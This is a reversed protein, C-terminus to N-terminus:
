PLDTFPAREFTRGDGTVRPDHTEKLVKMLQESLERKKDSFAPDAALNHTQDPDQRLDYLEEAPRKAFAYNYHWEWQSEGYQRVLWAKSPSADMDAFATYTSKELAEVAPLDSQGDFKPRGMPWRDPAFNRIYLFDPTRLARHPYPLNDERAAAVHRERGTVVWTRSPDVLGSKKARLVNLFSRGTMVEPPQVGGIQLFTPALDMLNVFDDVVRGRAVGPGRAILAVGTGFDYLNCKGGPVGPMGHDGSIVVWTNNLEGIEELKRLLIGVGADWAQIEGMYDAFDARVEAVDPMFKPLKGKLLEPDIGWLAQGSGKEFARHTLTPGFWYCFPQGPKRDALFAEFNGRVQALLKDRAAEFTMGQRVLKTANESFNNFDRGAKEYAYRQGGYPADAPQGPSWVKYSKGIHYGAERLLLPYSPINTDWVAPQLIAGRGTRWFYQGSLLSSRCPTCSPATVFANKFLVGQRAVGDINPTKIVQNISPRDEVATYAGAYRGWDDAFCFLINPRAQGPRFSTRWNEQLKNKLEAVTRAHKPDSALNNQENPDTQYDYLQAGMNGDDWETYRWRETRVSHGAFGGRWVQTFAPKDWAAKPDDLLPKLSRGALQHPPTLGCLDALTPYLDVLEVTRPSGQGKTKQGPAAIILPVRASNEFLSQKKWLGLEGVHYGNDSWFVVITKDSLKLRDLTDLLRGVQADVFAISAWYAQKSERAERETVGFWPWPATSAVSPKPVGQLFSEMIEPMRVEKIPFLDFYKKPAVYPCHPRYFGCAIFFPRDRHEELLKITASAGIGDTQEEDTGEAKLFSLSSGLGRKPTYNILQSEEEKDRGRPNVVSDWSPPDDLGSTGIDGPVGYHYIKGVRAAIYGNTRFLQPLTVVGPLVSRFHKKLDFVQTQDPRLGTLLSTRSPSCLPFQCYARDFRTGRAALRDLNPTKVLPHGYCSLDCNLDDTAIFLVNPREAAQSSNM